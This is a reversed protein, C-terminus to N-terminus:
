GYNTNCIYLEGIKRGVIGCCSLNSDKKRILSEKDVVGFVGNGYAVRYIMWWASFTFPILLIIIKAVDKKDM